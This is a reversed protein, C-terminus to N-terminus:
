HQRRATTVKSGSEATRLMMAVSQPDIVVM